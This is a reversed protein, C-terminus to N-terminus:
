SYLINQTEKKTMLNWINIAPKAIDILFILFEVEQVKEFFIYMDPGTILEFKIKTTKLMANWSLGPASFYYSPCLGYNKM